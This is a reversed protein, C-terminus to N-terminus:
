PAILLPRAPAVARAAEEHALRATAEPVTVKGSLGFVIPIELSTALGSEDLERRVALVGQVQRVDRVPAALAAGPPLPVRVDVTVARRLDHRLDLRLSASRRARARPWAAAVHVPSAAEDPPSAWLRLVPRELRALVGPGRAEVALTRVALPVDVLARAGPGIELTRRQGDAIVTVETLAAPDPAAALLARVVSRTAVSSGYGGRPDRQVGAWAALREPPAVAAGGLKSARLLAAFVISRDARSAAAGAPLTIAGSPRLAVAERLREVLSTAVAARHPREALSLIARAMAAPDKSRAVDALTGTVFADWCALVAGGAPAPEADLAELKADLSFSDPPCPAGLVAGGRAEASSWARVRAAIAFSGSGPVKADELASLRALARRSLEGARVALPDRDGGRGVAWRALRGAVEVADGLAAATALGDPDLSELAAALAADAGREFTLRAPGAPRHPRRDLWPGLDAEGELWQVHALDTPEGPARVEWRHTTTDDPLGSARTVVRLEAQGARAARVRVFARTSGGAPVDLARTATRPDALAAAGGVRLELSARAASASRNRVTIAVDVLDGETWLAGADVRASLPLAVPIDLTATAPMADDPVGVVALRWTTEVDGLPVRLRLHGKADTRTPPAWFAVGTPVGEGLRGHGRGFGSASGMRVSPASTRHSGGLRGSGSGLASGTTEELLAQWSSVTEDGVELEFRADVIRDEQVAAAYPTGSGLVRAFPDRVDDGSGVAGDPGPARLEFGRVATLFPAPPGAGRVFQLTGGWPDLLMSADIRGDRVLRRLLANPDRLAPEEPDLGREHRFARVEALVRFLKLRTVRRAVNDFSVQRDIAVLDDLSLPEGGPTEPRPEMAATVLSFLEPNFTFGGPGKRRADALREPDSSAEFVAGELSRMVEGFTRRMSENATGEPDSLPATPSGGLAGLVARRLPDVAAGGELLADCRRADVLEACLERRTDLEELGRLSGGGHADIMLASVTGPLGRGGGDALDVDVEVTGGPAARGGAIRATIRPLVAPRVLVASGLVPAGARRGPAVATVAWVGSAGAPLAIEGGAAGDDIWGSVAAPGRESSLLVSWPDAGSAARGPPRVVRIRVREGARAVAPEVRVLAPADRDVDLCQEFRDRRGLAPVSGEPRIAVRAAAGGACPGVLRRAGVDAPPQWTLEAEGDADTTVLEALGDGEVSFAAQVPAGRGDRVRLLLRQAVGPVLAPGEPLIEVSPTALGVVLSAHHALAHGEVEARAVLELTTGGPAVVSPASAEGTVAGSADTRAPTSAKEWADREAPPSTGKPGIWTRVSLGAIPEDTADRVRVTFTAREGARVADAGWAVWLRPTGPTEERPTLRASDGDGSGPVRAVLQWSWGPEDTRPIPVRVMATGGADTVARATFRALGGEQLELTVPTSGVPAGTIASTVLVWASVSSGPVVRTDALFLHADTAHVRRVPVTRTRQHSGSRVAVLLQLDREEGDPVPVDLHARGTADATASVGPPAKAVGPGLHEPDWAAEITVGALPRMTTVTPFGIAEVQLPVTAGAAAREPAQLFLDLGRAAPDRATVQADSTTAALSTLAAM